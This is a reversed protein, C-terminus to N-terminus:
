VGNSTGNWGIRVDRETNLSRARVKRRQNALQGDRGDDVEELSSRLTAGTRLGEM